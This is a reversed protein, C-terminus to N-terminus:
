KLYPIDLGRRQAIAYPMENLFAIGGRLTGIEFRLLVQHEQGNASQGLARHGGYARQGLAHGELMVAGHFQNVTQLRM